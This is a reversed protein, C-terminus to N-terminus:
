GEILLSVEGQTFTDTGSVTTFRVRDLTETLVRVGSVWAFGAAHAVQGTAIWKNAALRTLVIAGFRFIGVGGIFVRFGSSLTEHAGSSGGLYYLNGGAYGTASIGSAGGIQVIVQSGGNTSVDQLQVTIRKAWSPIGTFDVASGSTTAQSATLSYQMRSAVATAAISEAQRKPVAGLDNVADDYLLLEAEMQRSGDRPVLHGDAVPTGLGIVWSSHAGSGDIASVNVVLAGTEVNYSTVRGVMYNSVSVASFVYVWAGTAWAKGPQTTLSKSGVGVTLTTSSTGTTAVLQLSQELANADDVFGPLAALFADMEASFENPRDRSPSPPLDRIM